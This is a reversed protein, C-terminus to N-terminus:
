AQAVDDAPRITLGPVADPAALVVVRALHGSRPSREPLAQEEVEPTLDLGPVPIAMSPPVDDLRAVIWGKNPV